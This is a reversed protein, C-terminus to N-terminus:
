RTLLPQDSQPEDAFIIALRIRARRKGPLNRRRDLVAEIESASFRGIRALGRVVEQEEAGVEGRFRLLDIATRLPTTVSVGGLQTIDDADLVVERVRARDGHALRARNSAAACFELETPQRPNAGWIWAATGLEAIIRTSRCGLAAHARLTPSELEGVSLYDDFLRYLEGDLRAAM